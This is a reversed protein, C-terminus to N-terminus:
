PDGSGRPRGTYNPENRWFACHKGARMSLLMAAHRSRLHRCLRVASRHTEFCSPAGVPEDEDKWVRARANSNASLKERAREEPRPRADSAANKVMDFLGDRERARM